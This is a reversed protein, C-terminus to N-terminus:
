YSNGVLDWPATHSFVEDAALLDTQLGTDPEAGEEGESERM